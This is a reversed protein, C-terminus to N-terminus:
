ETIIGKAKAKKYAEAFIRDNAELLDLVQAKAAENGAQAAKILDAYMALGEARTITETDTETM